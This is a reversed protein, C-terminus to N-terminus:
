PSSVLEFRTPSALDDNRESFGSLVSFFLSTVGTGFEEGDFTLGKPFFVKQLRQRQDISSEIWLRAPRSAIKNAFDMLGEFDLYQDESRRVDEMIKEQDEDLRVVQQAYTPQDISGEVFLDVLKDKKARAKSLRQQASAFLAKSDGQRRKWVAGVEERFVSFLAPNPTLWELYAVFKRELVERKIYVGRCGKGRRHYYAHKQKNRGTSWSGTVPEGCRECRVFVRLPFDPNNRQYASAVLRKGSLIDQVKQFLEDSVLPEFSGREKLGWSPIVVWGAYIPNLLIMQFTQASVRVGKATQLGLGTLRKLIEAKSHIGTSALDFAVKILPAIKADPILNRGTHASVNIYGLPAKFPFRGLNAAQKMGIITKEAKLENDYQNFVGTMNRYMRGNATEETPQMVSCLTVGAKKLEIITAEQDAVTRAFRSLDHVVLYGIANRPEKCFKIMEQFAARNTTKASKGEDVFVKVVAWGNAACFKRSREQQTPLSLNTVQEDTSVRTYIVANTRATEKPKRKLAM